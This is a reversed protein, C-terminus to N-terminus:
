DLRSRPMWANQRHAHIRRTLLDQTAEDKDMNM